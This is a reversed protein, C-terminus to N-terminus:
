FTQLAENVLLIENPLEVRLLEGVRSVMLVAQYKDFLRAQLRYVRVQTHGVKLRDNRAEWKLGLSLPQPDLQMPLGAVLGLMLPNAFSGLLKEPQRLDDYAFVREWKQTGDEFSVRLSKDTATSRIECVTPRMVFRLKLADWVHNTQFETHLFFSLRMGPEGLDLTGDLDVKYGTLKRVMGEPRENENAIKGTTLEEGVNAVLRCHGVAKGRQYIELFSDDPATLIKEWVLSAPVAGGLGGRGAFESRWLLVNMTIFFLTILAFALRQM